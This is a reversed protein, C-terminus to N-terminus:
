VEFWSVVDSFWDSVYPSKTVRFSLIRPTWMGRKCLLFVGSSRPRVLGSKDLELSSEGRYLVVGEAGGM